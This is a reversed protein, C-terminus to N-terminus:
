PRLYWHDMAVVYFEIFTEQYQRGFLLVYISGTEM